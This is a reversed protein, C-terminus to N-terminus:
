RRCLENLAKVYGREYGDHIENITHKCSLRQHGDSLLDCAGLAGQEIVTKEDLIQFFTIFDLEYIADLAVDNLKDSKFQASDIIDGVHKSIKINSM